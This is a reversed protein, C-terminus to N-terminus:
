PPVMSSFANWVCLLYGMASPPVTHDVHLAEDAPSCYGLTQRLFVAFWTWSNSLCTSRKRVHLYQQHTSIDCLFLTKGNCQCIIYECSVCASRWAASAPRRHIVSIIIDRDKTITWVSSMRRTESSTMSIFVSHRWAYWQYNSPCCLILHEGKWQGFCGLLTPTPHFISWSATGTMFIWLPWLPYFWDQWLNPVRKLPSFVNYFMWIM